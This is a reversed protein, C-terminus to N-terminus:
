SNSSLTGEVNFQVKITKGSFATQFAELESKVNSCASLYTDSTKDKIASLKAQYFKYPSENNFFSGYNLKLSTLDISVQYYGEVSSYNSVSVGSPNSTTSDLEISYSSSIGDLYLYTYTTSSTRSFNSNSTVTNTLSDVGDGSLTVENSDKSLTLNSKVSISLSSYSKSVILNYKMPLSLNDEKSSDYEDTLIQTVSSSGGITLKGWSSDSDVTTKDLDYFVSNNVIVENSVTEVTVTTSATYSKDSNSIIWSSFGITALSLSALGIACGLVIHEKRKKNNKKM